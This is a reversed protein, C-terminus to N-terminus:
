SDKADRSNVEYFVQKIINQEEDEVEINVPNDLFELALNKIENSFTASFLLTQRQKPLLSSVKSIVDFFGMDLM